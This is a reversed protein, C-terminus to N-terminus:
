RARALAHLKAGLERFRGISGGLGGWPDTLVKWALVQCWGASPSGTELRAALERAYPVYDVTGADDDLLDFPDLESLAAHIALAFPERALIGAGDRVDPGALDPNHEALERYLAALDALDAGFTRYAMIPVIEDGIEWQRCIAWAISGCVVPDSPADRVLRAIEEAILPYVTEGIADLTMLDHRDLLAVIGAALPDDQGAPRPDLAMPVLGPLDVLVIPALVALQALEEGVLALPAEAVTGFEVLLLASVVIAWAPGNLSATELRAGVHAAVNEYRRYAATYAPPTLDLDGIGAPDHDDLIGLIATDLLDLLESPGADDDDDDDHPFREAVEDSAAVAAAVDAGVDAFREIPGTETAGLRRSLLAWVVAACEGPQFAEGVVIEAVDEGEAGYGEEADIGPLMVGLPDHLALIAVISDRLSSDIM